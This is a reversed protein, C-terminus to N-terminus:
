SCARKFKYRVRARTENEAENVCTAAPKHLTPTTILSIFAVDKYSRDTPRYAHVCARKKYIFRADAM